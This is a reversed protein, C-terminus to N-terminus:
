AIVFLQSLSRAQLGFISLMPQDRTEGVSVWPGSSPFLTSMSPPGMFISFPLDHLHDIKRCIPMFYISKKM